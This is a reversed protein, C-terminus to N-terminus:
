RPQAHKGQPPEYGPPLWRRSRLTMVILGFCVAAILGALIGVESLFVVPLPNSRIRPFVPSLLVFAIWAFGLFGAVGFIWLVVLSQAALDLARDAERQELPTAARYRRWPGVARSARVVTIGGFVALAIPGFMVWGAARTNYVAGNPSDDVLLWFLLVAGLLAGVLLM